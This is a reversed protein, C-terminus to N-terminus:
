RTARSPSKFVAAVSRAVLSALVVPALLTMAAAALLGGQPVNLAIFLVALGVLCLTLSLEWGLPRITM